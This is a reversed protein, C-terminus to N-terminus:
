VARTEFPELMVVAPAPPTSEARAMAKFLVPFPVRVTVVVRLWRVWSPTLPPMRFLVAGSAVPMRRVWMLPPVKSPLPWYPGTVTVVVLPERMAGPLGTALRDRHSISEMSGGKKGSKIHTMNSFIKDLPKYGTWEDTKIQADKTIKQEMSLKM